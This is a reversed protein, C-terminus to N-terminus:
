RKIGLYTLVSIVLTIFGGIAGYVISKGKQQDKFTENDNIRDDHNKLTGNQKDLRANIGKVEGKIEGVILLIKQTIEESM